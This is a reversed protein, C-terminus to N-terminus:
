LWREPALRVITRSRCPSRRQACRASELFNIEMVPKERLRVRSKERRIHNTGSVHVAAEHRIYGAPKNSCTTIKKGSCTCSRRMTGSHAHIIRRLRPETPTDTFLFCPKTQLDDAVTPPHDPIDCETLRRETAQNKEALGGGGAPARTLLHHAHDVEEDLAGSVLRSAARARTPPSSRVAACRAGTAGPRRPRREFRLVVGGLQHQRSRGFVDM